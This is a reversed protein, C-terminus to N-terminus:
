AYTGDESVVREEGQVAVEAGDAYVLNALEPEAIDISAYRDGVCATLRVVAQSTTVETESDTGPLDGRGAVAAEGGDNGGISNEQFRKKFHSEPSFRTRRALSGGQSTLVM